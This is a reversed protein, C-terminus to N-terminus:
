YLNITPIEITKNISQINDYLKDYLNKISLNDIYYTNLIELLNNLDINNETINYKYIIEDLTWSPIINNDLNTWYGIFGYDDSQSIYYSQNIPLYNLKDINDNEFNVYIIITKNTSNINVSVNLNYNFIELLGSEFNIDNTSITNDNFLLLSLNSTNSIKLKLIYSNYKYKIEYENLNINLDNYIYSLINEQLKNLNISNYFYQYSNIKNLQNTLELNSNIYTNNTLYLGLVPILLQDFLDNNESNIYSSINGANNITLYVYKKIYEQPIFSLSYTFVYPDFQKKYIINNSNFINGSINIAKSDVNITNNIKISSNQASILNIDNFEDIQLTNYKNFNKSQSIDLLTDNGININKNDTSIYLTSKDEDNYKTGIFGNYTAIPNNIDDNNPVGLINIRNLTNNNRIFTEKLDITPINNNYVYEKYYNLSSSEGNLRQIAIEVFNTENQYEEIQKLIQTIIATSNLETYSINRGNVIISIYTKYRLGLEYELRSKLTTKNIYKFIVDYIPYIYNTTTVNLLNNIYKNEPYIPDHGNEVVKNQPVYEIIANYNNYYQPHYQLGNKNRMVMCINDTIISSQNSNLQSNILLSQIYKYTPTTDIYSANNYPDYAIDNNDLTKNDSLTILKFDYQKNTNSLTTETLQWLSYIYDLKYDNQYDINNLVNVNCISIIITNKFFEIIDNSITYNNLDPLKTKCKIINSNYNVFYKPNITFEKTTLSSFYKNIEDDTFNLVSININNNELFNYVYLEKIGEYKNNNISYNTDEDDIVWNNLINLYPLTYLKNIEIGTIINTSQKNYKININYISTHNILSKHVYYIQNVKSLDSLYNIYKIYFNDIYYLKIDDPDNVICNFNYSLPIYLIDTEDTINLENKIYIFLEKIIKKYIYSSNNQNFYTTLNYTLLIQWYINYINQLNIFFVNLEEKSIYGIIDNSQNNFLDNLINTGSFINNEVNFQLTKFKYQSLNENNLTSYNYNFVYNLFSINSIEPGSYRFTSYNIFNDNFFSLNYEDDNNSNFSHLANLLENVVEKNFISDECIYDCLWNLKYLYISLNYITDSENNLEYVVYWDDSSNIKGYYKSVIYHLLKNSEINYQFYILKSNNLSDSNSATIKGKIFCTFLSDTIDIYSDNSIEEIDIFAFNILKQLTEDNNFIEHIIIKVDHNLNNNEITEYSQTIKNKLKINKLSYDNNCQLELIYNDKDYDHNNINFIDACSVQIYKIGNANIGFRQGANALPSVNQDIYEKLYDGYAYSSQLENINTIM